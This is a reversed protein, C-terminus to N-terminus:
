IERALRHAREIDEAQRSKDGGCLMFILTGARETYYMRWGPGFCERMEWVGCGVSKIDGLNGMSARRLRKVLRVRYQRDRLGSLWDAFQETQFITYM